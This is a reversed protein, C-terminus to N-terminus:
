VYYVDVKVKRHGDEESADTFKISSDEGCIYEVADAATSPSVRIEGMKASKEKSVWAIRRMRTVYIERYFVILEYMGEGSQSIVSRSLLPLVIPAATSGDTEDNDESADKSSPQGLQKGGAAEDPPDMEDLTWYGRSGGPDKGYFVNKATQRVEDGKLLLGSNPDFTIAGNLDLKAGLYDPATDSSNLKVKGDSGGGGGGGNRKGFLADQMFKDRLSNVPSRSRQLAEDREATVSALLKRMEDVSEVNATRSSRGDHGTYSIGVGM